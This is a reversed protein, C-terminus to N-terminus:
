DVSAVGSSVECIDGVDFQLFQCVIKAVIMGLSCPVRACGRDVLDLSNDPLFPDLALKRAHWRVHVNAHVTKGLIVNGLELFLGTKSRFESEVRSVQFRSRVEIQRCHPKGILRLKM